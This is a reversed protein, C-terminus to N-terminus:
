LDLFLTTHFVLDLSPKCQSPGKSHIALDFFPKHKYQPFLLDLFLTTHYVLWSFPKYGLLVRPPTSPLTLFRSRSLCYDLFLSTNTAPDLFPKHRSLPTSSLTLFHSSLCPGSILYIWACHSPWSQSRDPPCPYSISSSRQSTLLADGLLGVLPTKMETVLYDYFAQLVM